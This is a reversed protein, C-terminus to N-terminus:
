SPRPAEKQQETAYWRNADSDWEIGPYRLECPIAQWLTKAKNSGKANLRDLLEETSHVGFAYLEFPRVYRGPEGAEALMGNLSNLFEWSSVSGLVCMGRTSSVVGHADDPLVEVVVEGFHNIKWLFCNAGQKPPKFLGKYYSM